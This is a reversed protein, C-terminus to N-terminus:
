ASSCKRSPRRTMQDQARRLLSLAQSTHLLLHMLVVSPGLCLQTCGVLCQPQLSPSAPAILIACSAYVAVQSHVHAITHKYSFTYKHSFTYVYAVSDLHSQM